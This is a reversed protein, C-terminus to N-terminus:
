QRPLTRRLTEAQTQSLSRPFDVKFRIKLDGHNSPSKSIPMGQGRVVKVSDSGVVQYSFGPLTLTLTLTYLCCGLILCCPCRLIPGLNSSLVLCFSRCSVSGSLMAPTRLSAAQLSCHLFVSLSSDRRVEQVPVSVPRGDLHTLNVTTGCLADTLPLRATYVLDNGERKFVPHPAEAITFV